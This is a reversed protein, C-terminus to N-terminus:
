LDLYPKSLISSTAAPIGERRGTITLTLCTLPPTFPEQFGRSHIELITHDAVRELDNGDKPITM